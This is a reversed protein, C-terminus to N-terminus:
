CAVHSVVASSTNKLSYPEPPLTLQTALNSAGSVCTLHMMMDCPCSLDTLGTKVSRSHSLTLNLEEVDNIHAAHELIHLVACSIAVM